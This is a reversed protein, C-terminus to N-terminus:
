LSRCFLGVSRPATYIHTYMERERDGYICIYFFLRGGRSQLRHKHLVSRYVCFSVLLLSRLLSGIEKQRQIYVHIDTETYVCTNQRQIYV